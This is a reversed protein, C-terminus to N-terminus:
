GAAREGFAARWAALGPAGPDTLALQRLAVRAARSRDRSGPGPPPRAAPRDERVAEAVEAKTRVFAPDGYARLLAQFREHRAADFPIETGRPGATPHAPFASVLPVLGAPIPEIAPHTRGSALLKPLLHTHPGWPTTGGPPPIPTAVEARGLRTLLVRTPSRGLVMGAPGTSPDFLSRGEAATLAAVLEPDRTRVCFDVCAAGLGLDFLPVGRDEPLVADDDPGLATVATRAHMAADERPLCLALAQRWTGAPRLCREYAVPVVGPAPAVRVGGRRTRVSGDARHAPEGPDRELDAVAGWTGVSWGCAPDDLLADVVAALEATTGAGRAVSDGATPRTM